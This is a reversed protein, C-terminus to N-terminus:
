SKLKEYDEKYFWVYGYAKRNEGKIRGRLAVGVNRCANAKGFYENTANFCEFELIEGTECHVGVIPRSNPHKSGTYKGKISNRHKEIWEKTRKRGKNKVSVRQNRTGHNANHKATCWELNEVRNDHKVENIHNIHIPEGREMLEHPFGLFMFAVLKHIKVYRHEGNRRLHVCVYGNKQPKPNFYTTPESFIRGQKDAFSRVRGMNSIQYKGRYDHEIGDLDTFYIDKWIEEM